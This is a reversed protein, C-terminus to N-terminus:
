LLSTKPTTRGGHYAVLGETPSKEIRSVRYGSAAAAERLVKEFAVAISGIFSIPLSHAGPYMAVNRRIFQSLEELVLSYVYPNWLHRHLFPVLSALFRNADSRRYVKDLIDSVTLGYEALFAERVPAPLHGKFADSVLRKGLAAGSGEDGLIYGLSPVNLSIRTGDYLCSNSGTGLICAIGQERGFLARAAGLLDSAATVTQTGWADALVEEVKACIAPTACGAGYFFVETPAADGLLTRAKAFADAMQEKEAMLANLGESVIHGEVEGDPAILTWEVKTSGADAILKRNM